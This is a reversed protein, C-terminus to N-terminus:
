EESDSWVYLLWGLVAIALLCWLGIILDTVDM